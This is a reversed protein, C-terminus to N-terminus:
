LINEGAEEFTVIHTLMSTLTESFRQLSSTQNVKNLGSNKEWVQKVM